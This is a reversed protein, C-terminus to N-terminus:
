KIINNINNDRSIQKKINKIDEFSCNNHRIQFHQYFASEFGYRGHSISKEFNIKEKGNLEIWSICMDPTISNKIDEHMRDWDFDLSDQETFKHGCFYCQYKENEYDIIILEKVEKNPNCSNCDCRNIKSCNPCTLAM